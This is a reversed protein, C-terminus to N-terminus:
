ESETKTLFNTLLDATARISDNDVINKGAHSGIRRFNHAVGPITMLTIDGGEESLRQVFNRYYEQVQQPIPPNDVEFFTIYVSGGDRIYKELRSFVPSEAVNWQQRILETFEPGYAINEVEKPYAAPSLLILKSVKSGLAQIREIASVAMYGAASTGMLSVDSSDIRECFLKIINILVDTRTQLTEKEWEGSSGGTAPQNYLLSSENQDLIKLALHGYLKNILPLKKRREPDRPIGGAMTVLRGREAGRTFACRIQREGIDVTEIHFKGTELWEAESQPLYDPRRHKGEFNFKEM